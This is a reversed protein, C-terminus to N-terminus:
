TSKKVDIKTRDRTIPTASQHSVNVKHKKMWTVGGVAAAGGVVWPWMKPGNNKFGNMAPNM